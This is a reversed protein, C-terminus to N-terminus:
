PRRKKSLQAETGRRMRRINDAHRLFILGGTVVSVAVVAAPRGTMWAFAPLVTAAALSGASVMRTRWVTGLFVVLAVGCAVPAAIAYCGLATAVGKGGGRGRSYLPFLHGCFACLVAGAVGVSGAVGGGMLPAALFALGVPVAGKLLDGALVLLAAETGVTRRVNTAGINGSGLRRIDKGAVRRVVLVGTPISGLAYALAALALFVAATLPM